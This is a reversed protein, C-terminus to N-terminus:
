EHAGVLAPRPHATRVWHGPSVELLAPHTTACADDGFYPCRPAFRCTSSWRGIRPPSGAIAPLREHRIQTNEFDPASRLLAETYPHRPASFIEAAPAWEVIEGAYMVVIHDAVRSMVRMDHSILIMAMHRDVKLKELLSLVQAEVRADLATTPEDAILLDPSSAIAMAITVRQSMGGSLQYPYSRLREPARSINVEELLGVARDLAQKRSVKDHRMVVEALQSGIQRTPNLSSMPDQFIASVQRGRVGNMEHEPLTLLDVDNLRIRGSQVRAVQPLLRLVSLGLMSKGSGSEGVVGLTEGANVTLSIGQLAPLLQKDQTLLAVSLDDVELLSV